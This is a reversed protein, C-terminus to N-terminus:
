LPHRELRAAQLAERLAEAFAGREGPSLWAAVALSRASLRLWVQMEDEEGELEVRTFATPSSWVPRERGRFGRLVKVTESSVQVRESRVRARTALHLALWLGLVDLGLFFPPIPAGLLIAATFPIAAMAATFVVINRVGKRSLSRNPTITADMYLAGSSM